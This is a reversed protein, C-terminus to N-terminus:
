AEGGIRAAWARAQATFLELAQTFAARAVERRPEDEERLREELVSAAEALQDGGLNAALGKVSHALMMADDTRGEALLGTLVSAANEYERVFGVLFRAYLEQNGMLLTLARSSDLVSRAPNGDRSAERPRHQRLAAFLSSSDLPKGLHDDMGAELARLRDEGTAHGTLAIVPMDRCSPIQRIARFTEYGDMGPMQIDLLVTEYSEGALMALAVPGSQAGDPDLGAQRLMELATHRSLENDDVVLVRMGELGRTLEGMDEVSSGLACQGAEDALPLEVRFRFSSGQGPASEAELRGGMAEVMRWAISLGLGTGGVVRSLEADAQAFPQFLKELNEGAMGIGTDTVRFAYAARGPASPLAEVALEVKGASTFALANEMLNGLVQELRLEDGLVVGSTDGTMRLRLSLRKADAKPAFRERLREVVDRVCFAVPVLELRGTELRSYDLISEIVKLLSRSAALAKELNDRQRTDLPTRLTLETLGMIANMPSRIEHSVNALFRSKTKSAEEAARKAELLETVDTIVSVAGTLEGSLGRLPGVSVNGWFVSGDVRVYRTQMCFRGVPAEAVKQSLKVAAEREEPHLFDLYTRGLIEEPSMGFLQGMPQNVFLVRGQGDLEAIGWNASNVIAELREQNRRLERRSAERESVDQIVSQLLARGGQHVPGSYIQVERAEGSALRHVASIPPFDGKMAKAVNSAIRERPAINIRELPMGAMEERSWGYFRSAAPNAEAVCLCDPDVLMKVAPSDEFLSRSLELSAELDWAAQRGRRIERALRRNLLRLKTTREVVQRRLQQPSRLFAHLLVSAVLAIGMSVGYGALYDHLGPWPLSSGVQLFLTVGPVKVPLTVVPHASMDLAAPSLRAASDYLTRGSASDVRCVMGHREIDDLGSVRVLRDLSTVATTFGWFREEGAQGLFVPIRSAFGQRGNGLTFPGVAFVTGAATSSTLDAAWESANLLDKGIVHAYGRKPYVASIVGDPALSMAEVVPFAKEVADATSEFNSSDLAHARVLAALISPATGLQALAGEMSRVRQACFSELRAQYEQRKEKLSTTFHVHSLGLILAALLMPPLLSRLTTM